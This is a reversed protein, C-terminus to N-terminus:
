YRARGVEGVGLVDHDLLEARHAAVLYGSVVVPQEGAFGALAEEFAGDLVLLDVRADGLPGTM